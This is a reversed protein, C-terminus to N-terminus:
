MLLSYCDKSDVHVEGDFSRLACSVMAVGLENALWRVPLSVESEVSKVIENV